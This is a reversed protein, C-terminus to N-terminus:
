FHKATYRGALDKETRIIEAQRILWAAMQNRERQKMKDVGRISLTAVAPRPKTKLESDQFNM